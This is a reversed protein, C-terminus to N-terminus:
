AQLLPRETLFAQKDEGQGTPHHKRDQRRLCRLALEKHEIGRHAYRESFPLM